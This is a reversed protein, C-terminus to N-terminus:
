SRPPDGGGADGRADGALGAAEMLRDISQAVEARARVPDFAQVPRDDSKKERGASHGARKTRQRMIHEVARALEPLRRVDDEGLGGALALEEMRAIEISVVRALRRALRRPETSARQGPLLTAVANRTDWEEAERRKRLEHRTLGFRECIVPVSEERAEYLRRVEAWDVGCAAGEPVVGVADEADIMTIKRSKGSRGCACGDSRALFRGFRRV